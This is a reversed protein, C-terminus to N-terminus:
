SSEFNRHTSVQWKHTKGWKLAFSHVPECKTQSKLSHWSVRRHAPGCCVHNSPASPITSPWQSRQTGSIRDWLWAFTFCSHKHTSAQHSIVLYVLCLQCGVPPTQMGSLSPHKSRLVLLPQGGLSKVPTASVRHIKHHCEQNYLM